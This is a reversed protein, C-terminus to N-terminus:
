VRPRGVELAAEATAQQCVDGTVLGIRDDNLAPCRLDVGVIMANPFFDRWMRLSAGAHVGLECIAGVGEPSPWMKEYIRTNGM